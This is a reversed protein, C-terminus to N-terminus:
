IKIMMNIFLEIAAKKKEKNKFIIIIAKIIIVLYKMNNSDFINFLIGSNNNINQCKEIEPEIYNKNRCCNGM